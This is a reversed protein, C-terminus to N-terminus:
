NYFHNRHIIVDIDSRLKLSYVVYGILVSSVDFMVEMEEQVGDGHQQQQEDLSPQNDFQQLAVEASM